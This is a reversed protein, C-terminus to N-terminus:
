QCKLAKATKGRGDQIGCRVLLAHGFDLPIEQRLAPQKPARDDDRTGTQVSAVLSASTPRM